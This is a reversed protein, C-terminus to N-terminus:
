DDYPRVETFRMVSSQEWANGFKFYRKLYNEFTPNKKYNMNYEGESILSDSPDLIAKAVRRIGGFTQEESLIDYTYRQTYDRQSLDPRYILVFLKDNCEYVKANKGFLFLQSAEMENESYAEKQLKYIRDQIEKSLISIKEM